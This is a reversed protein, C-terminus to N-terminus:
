TEGLKGGTGAHFLRTQFPVANQILFSDPINSKKCFEKEKSPFNRHGCFFKWGKVHGPPRSVTDFGHEDLM